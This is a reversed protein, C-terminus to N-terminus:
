IAEARVGCFVRRGVTLAAGEMYGIPTDSNRGSVPLSYGVTAPVGVAGAHLDSTTEEETQTPASDEV